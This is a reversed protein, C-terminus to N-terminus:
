TKYLSKGNSLNNYLGFFPIYEPFVFYIGNKPTLIDGGEYKKNSQAQKM